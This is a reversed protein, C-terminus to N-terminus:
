PTLSDLYPLTISSSEEGSQPDSNRIYWSMFILKLKEIQFNQELNTKRERAKKKRETKSKIEIINALGVWDERCRQGWHTYAQIQSTCKKACCSIEKMSYGASSFALPSPYCHCPHHLPQSHVGYAWPSEWCWPWQWLSYAPQRRLHHETDEAAVREGTHQSTLLRWCQFM